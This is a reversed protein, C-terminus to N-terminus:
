ASAVPQPTNSVLSPTGHSPQHQRHHQQRRVCTNPWGTPSSAITLVPDGLGTRVLRRTLRGLKGKQAAAFFLLKPTTGLTHMRIKKPVFLGLTENPLLEESAAAPPMRCFCHCWFSAIRCAQETCLLITRTGFVRSEKCGGDRGLARTSQAANCHLAAPRAGNRRHRHRLLSRGPVPTM